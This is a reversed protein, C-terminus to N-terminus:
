EAIILKQGLGLGLGGRHHQNYHPGCMWAWPGSTTAADYEAPTETGQEKCFDCNPRHTITTETVCHVECDPDKCDPMEIEHLAAKDDNYNTM